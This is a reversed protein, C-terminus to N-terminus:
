FLEVPDVDLSWRTRGAEPLAALRERWAALFQQLAPRTRAEVLLQARYRGARKEMPAPAPGLLSVQKMALEEGQARARALFQLAPERGPAEARLLALHGFPPWGAAQREALAAAAFADYGERVLVQLLPHDPFLTQIYVEGAREGRGARGAVQVITQALKESARFDTGFLGHDADVIGVLTVGPLDHGKTLMQTGLLIRAEGTAAADLRRELEGRGRTTDRDIRVLPHAPFLEGLAAELRETGQGVAYLEGDCDACREPVPRTAGCHHCTVRNERRHLVMRADCRACEVCKGCGPCMLTPAYGRRNLFLLVQAGADLHRQMAALLPPALGDTAVNRRLDVFHFRPPQAAGARDPLRLRRYRGAAANAMSELSPTASGLIVPVSLQRARWVALDRASYRFGEHQKFSGDHEEDVVILGPRPLPAFVASRTGIVILARGDRARSWAELRQVDTLGSHLLVIGTSPFRRRFRQLTQPTLGIEPVLVLSQRGAAVQEAICRLYVETKGSGTVGQLLWAQYGTSAAIARCAEAQAAALAPPEEPTEGGVTNWEDIRAREVFGSRELARLAAQWGAAVAGLADADLGSEAAALAELLRTRLPARKPLGATLVDRGAGTLRWKVAGTESARERRLLRPLATSFVEGPPHQYYAAAWELLAMLPADLLPAPDLARLVRRLKGAPWASDDAVAVVVGVRKGTRFPVLVRQGVRVEAHAPPLYDFAQMVPADIAVRLIRGVSV